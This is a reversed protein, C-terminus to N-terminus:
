KALFLFNYGDIIFSTWFDVMLDTIFSDNKLINEDIEVPVAPKQPYLYINEDTHAVGLNWNNGTAKNSM